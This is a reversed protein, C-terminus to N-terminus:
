DNLKKIFDRSERLKKELEEKARGARREIDLILDKKDKFYYRDDYASTPGADISDCCFAVGNSFIDCNTIRKTNPDYYHYGEANDRRALGDLKDIIEERFSEKKIKEEMSLDSWIKGNERKGFSACFKEKLDLVAKNIEEKDERESSMRREEAMSGDAMIAEAKEESFPKPEKEM